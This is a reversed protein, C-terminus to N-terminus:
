AGLALLEDLQRIVLQALLAQMPQVRPNGDLGDYASLAEYYAKKDDLTVIIAPYGLQELMINIILRGIRGNGDGFPHIKELRLHFFAISEIPHRYESPRADCIQLMKYPVKEYSTPRHGHIMLNYNRYEGSAEQHDILMRRHLRKVEHETIRTNGRVYHQGLLTADRYGLVAVHDSLPKGAVVENAVLVREIEERTLSNGEIANSHYISDYLFREQYAEQADPAVPPKLGLEAKKRDVERLLVDLEDSM